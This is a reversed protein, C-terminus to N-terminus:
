TPCKGTELLVHRRQGEVPYEVAEATAGPPWPRLARDKTLAELIRMCWCCGTGNARDEYLTGVRGRLLEVTEPSLLVDPKNEAM